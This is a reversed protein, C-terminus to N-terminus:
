TYGGYREVKTVALWADLTYGRYSVDEVYVKIVVGEKHSMKDQGM